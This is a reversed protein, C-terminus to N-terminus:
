RANLWSFSAYIEFILYLCDHSPPDFDEVLRDSRFDRGKRGVHLCAKQPKCLANRRRPQFAKAFRM